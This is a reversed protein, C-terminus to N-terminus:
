FKSFDPERKEVFALKGEKSEESSYFLSTTEHAFHTFGYMGDYRANLSYKLFKVSTPSLKAIESAIKLSFEDVENLPVVYNVLGWSLAEKASIRRCTLWMEKARKLGITEILLQAGYGADFSGVRPGNQGFISNDAAVTIDCCLQLIQGGGIAYGKVVAIVPKPHYRITDYLRLVNIKEGVTSSKYGTSGREKVDGGTSFAKESSSGLIIVRIDKRYRVEEFALILEDITDSTWSNLRSPRNIAVRFAKLKEDLNIEEKIIESM